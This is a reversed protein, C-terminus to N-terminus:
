RAARTAERALRERVSSAVRARAWRAAIADSGLAIVFVAYAGIVFPWHPMSFVPDTM